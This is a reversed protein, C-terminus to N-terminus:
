KREGASFYKDTFEYKIFEEIRQNGEVAKLYEYLEESENETLLEDRCKYLSSVQYDEITLLLDVIARAFTSIYVEKIEPYTIVRKEIGRNKLIDNTNYLKITDNISNSYLYTTPHWDATNGNEDPINLAEWGSIYHREDTNPIKKPNMM